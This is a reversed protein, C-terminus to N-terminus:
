AFVIPIFIDMVLQGRYRSITTLRMRFSALMVSIGIRLNM